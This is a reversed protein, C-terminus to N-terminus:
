CVTWLIFVKAKVCMWAHYVTGGVKMSLIRDTPITRFGNRSMDFV